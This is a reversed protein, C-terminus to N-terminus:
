FFESICCYSVISSKLNLIMEFLNLLHWKMYIMLVIMFSFILIVLVTLILIMQASGNANETTQAAHELAAKDIIAVIEDLLKAPERDIGSVAADGTTHEYGQAKFEELGNRYAVGM